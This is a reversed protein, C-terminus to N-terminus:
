ALLIIHAAYIMLGENTWYGLVSMQEKIKGLVENESAQLIITVFM